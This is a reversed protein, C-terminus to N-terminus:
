QAARRSFGARGNTFRLLARVAAKDVEALAKQQPVRRAIALEIRKRNEPTLRDRLTDLKRTVGEWFPFRSVEGSFGCSLRAVSTQPVRRQTLSFAAADVALGVLGGGVEPM